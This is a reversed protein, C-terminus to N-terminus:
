EETELIILSTNKVTEEIIVVVPNEVTSKSLHGVNEFVIRINKINQPAQAPDVAPPKLTELSAISIFFNTLSNLFIPCGFLTKFM